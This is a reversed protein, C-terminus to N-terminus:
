VILRNFVNNMANDFLYDSQQGDLLSFSPDQEVVYFYNNIIKKCIGHLTGIDCNVMDDIQESIFSIKEEDTESQLAKVLSNFLKQKMENGASNTYTVVLLKKIPVGKKCVMDTLKAIMTSTKGSGASASVLTNKQFSDVFLQQSDTLRFDAM